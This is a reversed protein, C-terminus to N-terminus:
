SRPKRYRDGLVLGHGPSSGPAMQGQATITPWGDFMPELLPFDELWRLNPAVAALHVLLGPLFHPSVVVGLADAVVCLDLVPTIGGIMALDPQAVSLARETMLSVFTELQQFHEGAAIAVSSPVLARYAALASAPLPEEVFLAGHDKALSTLWRAAALDCKENADVMVHRSGVADRIARLLAEDSRDGRVRPKVATFGRSLYREAAAAALRPEQGATFGGSGYVDTL